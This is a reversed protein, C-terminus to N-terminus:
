RAGPHTLRRGQIIERIRHALQAKGVLEDSDPLGLDAFVNESGKTIKVKAM